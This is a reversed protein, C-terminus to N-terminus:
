SARATYVVTRSQNAPVAIEAAEVGGGVTTRALNGGARPDLLEVVVDEPRLNRLLVQRRLTGDGLPTDTVTVTLDDAPGLLFRMTADLPTAALTQQGALDLRGATDPAYLRVPGPPLPLGLGNAASNALEAVVQPAPQRGPRLEVARRLGSRLASVQALCLRRAQGQPLDARRPLYFRQGSGAKAGAVTGSAADALILGVEPLDVGAQNTVQVWSEFALQRRDDSVTLAHDVAWTFGDSLYSVEFEGQGSGPTEVLWSVEPAFDPLDRGRPLVLEGAPHVHIEGESAVVVGSEEVALLTGEVSYRGDRVRVQQGVAAAVLDASSTAGAPGQQELLRFGELPRLPRLRLTSGDARRALPGFTLTTRGTELPWTQVARLLARGDNFLTVQRPGLDPPTEGGRRVPPLAAPSAAPPVYLPEPAADAAAQPEDRLDGASPTQALALPLLLLGGAGLAVVSWRIRKM